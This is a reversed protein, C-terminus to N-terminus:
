EDDGVDVVTLNRPDVTLASVWVTRDAGWFGHDLAVIALTQADHKYWVGGGAEWDVVAYGIIRGPGVDPDLTVRTGIGPLENM